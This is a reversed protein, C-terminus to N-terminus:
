ESAAMRKQANESVRESGQIEEVGTEAACTCGIM